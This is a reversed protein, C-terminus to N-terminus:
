LNALSQIVFSHLADVLPSGNSSRELVIQYCTLSPLGAANDVIKLPKRVLSRPFPAIALDAEMAAQQGACHESVYAIRYAVGARDLAALAAERWVCGTGALSLPLPRLTAAQGGACEAWVLQETHVVEGSPAHSGSTVLALDLEGQRIQESMDKSRAMIVDVQVGPYSRAFSSLVAPLIRTGVDDSTGLRVSGSLEPHYFRSLAQENLNLMRRAFGLLAEGEPTVSARRPERTLLRYGLLEELRKIQMSIASPTRHVQTAATSFSGTEAIAIFSRLLDLELLPLATGKPAATM